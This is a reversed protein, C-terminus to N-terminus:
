SSLNIWYTGIAAALGLSAILVMLATTALKALYQSRETLTIGWTILFTWLGNFAHYCAALVFLSYLAVMLPSKFSDRVIMLEITGFNDAVGIVQTPSIEKKLLAEMWEEQDELAQQARLAYAQEMDFVEPTPGSLWSFTVDSDPIEPVAEGLESEAELGRKMAAISEHDYLDVGLRESVTYLGSDVSLEAMFYRQGDRDASWPYNIVRMHAIHAIIGILLLWSTLRMWTYAKNRPYQPLSPTSGDSSGSNPKSTFLYHLGWLMHTLFPIALLGIEIVQLYPLNHIANVHHVFGEGDDGLWLAAQSNTLLHMILFLVLWVGMLSHLRRWVFATPLSEKAM